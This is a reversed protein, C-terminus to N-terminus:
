CKNQKNFENLLIMVIRKEKVTLRQYKQILCIEEDSLIIDDENECFFQSLSMNFANCIAKLTTISPMTQRSFMNSITATPLQAEEKLRYNSWGREDRLNKIRELVDMLTGRKMNNDYVNTFYIFGLHISM